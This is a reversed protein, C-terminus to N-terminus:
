LCAGYEVGNFAIGLDQCSTGGPCSPSNVKCYKLCEMSMDSLTFCASGAACDENTSCTVGQAGNGAGSCLTFIRMQGMQEQYLQCGLGLGAPCGALTVPDCNDSCLTVDPLVSGPSSPDNLQILCTGGNCM